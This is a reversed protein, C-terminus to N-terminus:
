IPAVAPKSKSSALKQAYPASFSRRAASVPDFPPPPQTSACRHTSRQQSDNTSLLNHRGLEPIHAVRDLALERTAGKFTGNDQDELLRLRGYRALPLFVGGASEVEDGAPPPTYDELHSSDQTMNETAGSDSVWYKIEHLKRSAGRAALFLRASTAVLLGAGLNTRASGLVGGHQSDLTAPATASTSRSLCESAKRPELCFYCDPCTTKDGSESNKSSKKQKGCGGIRNKSGGGGRNGGGGDDNGGRGGNEGGGGNGGHEGGRQYGNQKKERRIIQFERCNLPPHGTRSCLPCRISPTDNRRHGRASLMARGGAASKESELREYQNIVAREIWERTPWDSSSGLMRVEADYQPTLGSLIVIDIDKTDVPRDM